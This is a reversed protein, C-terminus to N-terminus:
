RNGDHQEAGAIPMLWEERRGVWLEYSPKLTTPPDDFAGAKIEIEDAGDVISFLSSGCAPCFHRNDTSAIWSHTRGTVVAQSRPWVAFYNGVSGTEKRCIACHCLGIRVPDGVVEFTVQGCNCGGMRKQM